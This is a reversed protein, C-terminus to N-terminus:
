TISVKIETLHYRGGSTVGRGQTRVSGQAVEMQRATLLGDHM